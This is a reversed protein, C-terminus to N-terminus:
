AEDDFAITKLEAVADKLPALYWETDDWGRVMEGAQAREEVQPVNMAPAIWQASGDRRLVLALLREGAHGHEFGTLYFLDAGPTLLLADVGASKMVSVAQQFRPRM